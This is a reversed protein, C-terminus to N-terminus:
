GPLRAVAGTVHRKRGVPASAALVDDLQRVEEAVGELASRDVLDMPDRRFVQPSGRTPTGWASEAQSAATTPCDTGVARREVTWQVGHNVETHTVM